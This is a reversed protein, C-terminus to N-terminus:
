RQGLLWKALKKALRVGCWVMVASVLTLLTMATYTSPVELLVALSVALIGVGSLYVVDRCGRWLAACLNRM